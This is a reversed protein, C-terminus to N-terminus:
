NVKGSLAKRRHKDLREIRNSLKQEANARVLKEMGTDALHKHNATQRVRKAMERGTSMLPM